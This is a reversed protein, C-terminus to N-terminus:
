SQDQRVQVVIGDDLVIELPTSVFWEKRDTLHGIVLGGDHTALPGYPPIEILAIQQNGRASLSHAYRLILAECASCDHHVLAVTWRGQMLTDGIDIFEALPFPKGKWRSVEVIVLEAGKQAQLSAKAVRFSPYALLLLTAGFGAVIASCAMAILAQSTRSVRPSCKPNHVVSRCALLGVVAALDFAASWWPSITVPGFCGCSVKGTVAHFVSVVFFLLFTTLAVWWSAVQRVGSALWAAVVIECIVVVSNFLHSAFGENLVTFRIGIEYAKLLVATCLVVPIVVRMFRWLLFQVQSLPQIGGPSKGGRGHAVEIALM